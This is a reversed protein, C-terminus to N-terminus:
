IRFKDLMAKSARFSCTRRSPVTLPMSFISRKYNGETCAPPMVTLGKSWLNLIQLTSLPKYNETIRFSSTCVNGTAKGRWHNVGVSGLGCVQNGSATKWVWVRQGLCAARTVGEFGSEPGYKQRHRIEWPTHAWHIKTVKSSLSHDSFCIHTPQGRKLSKRVWKQKNM